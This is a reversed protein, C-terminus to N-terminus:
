CTVAGKNNRTTLWARVKRRDQQTLHYIGPLTDLGDLDKKKTLTCPVELGLRRLEAVLEPGNACGAIADIAKRPQPCSMLAHLVRLHRPNDTGFFRASM